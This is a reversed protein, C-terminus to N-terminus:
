GIGSLSKLPFQQADVVQFISERAAGVVRANELKARGIMTCRLLSKSITLNQVICSKQVISQKHLCEWSLFHQCSFFNGQWRDDHDRGM